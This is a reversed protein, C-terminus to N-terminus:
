NAESDCNFGRENDEGMDAFADSLAKLDLSPGFSSRKKKELAGHPASGRASRVSVPRCKPM